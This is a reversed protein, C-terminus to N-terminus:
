RLGPPDEGLVRDRILRTVGREWSYDAGMRLGSDGVSVVAGTRADLMRFKVVYETRSIRSVIGVFSQEAGLRSAIGAECGDCERLRHMKAASADVSGIDVLTYRGSRAFLQRVAGDVNTLQTVDSDSTGAASAGASLDELEFDFVALKIPAPAPAAHSAFTALLAACLFAYGRQFM